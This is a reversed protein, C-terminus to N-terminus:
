SLCPDILETNNQFHTAFDTGSYIQMIVRKTGLGTALYIGTSTNITMGIKEAFIDGFLSYKNIVGANAIGTVTFSGTTTVTSTM